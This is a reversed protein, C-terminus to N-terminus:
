FRYYSGLGFSELDSIEDFGEWEARIGVKKLNFDIGVGYIAQNRRLTGGVGSIKENIRSYGLKGFIAIVKGAPFIGRASFEFAEVDSRVTGADNEFTGMDRYSGEIGFFKSANWGGFLKWGSAIGIDNQADLYTVGVYADQAQAPTIGGLLALLVIALLVIRKM